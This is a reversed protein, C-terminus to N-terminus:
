RDHSVKTSVCDKLLARLRELRKYLGDLSKNLFEAEKKLAAPDESFYRLQLLRQHDEALSDVCQRLASIKESSDVTSAQEQAAVVDALALAVDPDLITIKDRSSKRIRALSIRKACALSYALFEHPEVNRPGNKWVVLAVDQLCDDVAAGKGLLSRLYSRVSLQSRGWQQSFERVEALGVHERSMAHGEASVPSDAAHDDFTLIRTMM